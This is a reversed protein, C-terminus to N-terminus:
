RPAERHRPGTGVRRNGRRHVPGRQSPQRRRDQHVGVVSESQVPGEALRTASLPRSSGLPNPGASCITVSLAVISMSEHGHQQVPEPHGVLAMMFGTNRTRRPRVPFQSSISGADSAGNTSPM